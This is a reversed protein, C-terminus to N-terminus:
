DLPFFPAALHTFGCRCTCTAARATGSHCQWRRVPLGEGGPGRPRASGYRKRRPSTARNARPPREGAQAARTLWAADAGVGALRSASPHPGASAFPNSRSHVGHRFPRFAISCIQSRPFLTETKPLPVCPALTM